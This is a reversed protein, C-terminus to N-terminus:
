KAHGIGLEVSLPSVLVEVLEEFRSIHVDAQADSDFNFAITPMGVATAGALEVRDHGVFVVKDPPLKMAEVAALYCASDPMCRNLDISSIVTPFLREIGFRHLRDRLVAVPHECDCIVGLAFGEQHLQWLTNRVGPLPRSQDELQRRRAHSAAEVEDIQGQSLGACRLFSAFAQRFERQGRHVEDLYDRDWLRFFSCYNTSLGLRTLLMLVWRRWVTDDYLINCMDFLIGSTAKALPQPKFPSHFRRNHKAAGVPLQSLPM